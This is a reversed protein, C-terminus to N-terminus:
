GDQNQNNNQNNEVSSNTNNYQSQEVDQNPKNYQKQEINQNTNVYQNEEMNPNTRYYQNQAINSNTNSYQNQSMNQTQNTKYTSPGVYQAKGFGLIPYFVVPLLALGIGFATSKGFSHALEINKWFLFVIASPTFFIELLVWAPNIGVMKFLVFENHGPILTEWGEYGSKKFIKWTAIIQLIAIAIFIIWVTIGIGFIVGLITGTGFDSGYAHSYNHLGYNYNYDGYDGYSGYLSDM